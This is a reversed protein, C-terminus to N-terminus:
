KRIYGGGPQRFFTGAPASQLIKTAFIKGVESTPVGQESARKAYIERRQANVEAVLRRADSPANGDRLEIYGDFREAITGNSRYTDLANAALTPAPLAAASAFGFTMGICLRFGSALFRRRDSYKQRM